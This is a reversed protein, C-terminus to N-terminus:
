TTASRALARNLDDLYGITLVSLEAVRRLSPSAQPECVVAIVEVGVPFRLSWSRLDRVTPTSGCLLFVISVGPVDQAALRALEGLGVDADGWELESTADLLRTRSRTALMRPERAPPDGLPVPSPSTVVSLERRDRIARLCISAAASVTLEFEDETAYDGTGLGFAVVLHSRRTEEFQRVTLQGTRATTKWHIHRREDGPRFDRLAHFSIDSATLDRTPNGELDRVLGTSTSALTVTDPHIHVEVTTTWEKNRRFLGVPDGQVTRVPGVMVVGRREAPVSFESGATGGVRRPPLRLEVVGDGLRVEVRSGWLPRRGHDAIRVGATVPHGVTTREAKVYLDIEYRAQGILFLLCIAVLLAATTGMVVFETWGAIEGVVLAIVATCMATWGVPTVVASIRDLLRRGRRITRRWIRRLRRLIRARRSRTTAALVTSRGTTLATHSTYATRTTMGARSTRDPRGSPTM